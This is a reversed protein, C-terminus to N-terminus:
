SPARAFVTLPKWSKVREAFYETKSMEYPESYAETM